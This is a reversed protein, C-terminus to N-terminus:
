CFCLTFFWRPTKSYRYSAIDSIIVAIYGELSVVLFEVSVGILALEVRFSRYWTINRLSISM